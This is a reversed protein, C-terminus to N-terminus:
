GLWLPKPSGWVDRMGGAYWCRAAGLLGASSLLVSRMETTLKFSWLYKRNRLFLELKELDVPQQELQSAPHLPAPQWFLTLLLHLGERAWLVHDPRDVSVLVGRCPLCLDAWSRAQRLPAHEHEYSCVWLDQIRSPNLLQGSM